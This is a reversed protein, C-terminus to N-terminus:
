AGWRYGLGTRVSRDWRELGKEFAQRIIGKRDAPRRWRRRGPPTAEARRRWLEPDEAKVALRVLEASVVIGLKSAALNRAIAAYSFAPRKGNWAGARGLIWLRAEPTVKV